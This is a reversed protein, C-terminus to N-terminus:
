LVYTFLCAAFLGAGLQLSSQFSECTLLAHLHGGNPTKLSAQPATATPLVSPQQGM